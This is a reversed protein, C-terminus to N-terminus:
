ISNYQLYELHVNKIMVQVEPDICDKNALYLRNLLVYNAAVGGSHKQQHLAKLVKHCVNPAIEYPFLFLM